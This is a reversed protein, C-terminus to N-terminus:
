ILLTHNSTINYCAWALQGTLSQEHAPNCSGGYPDEPMSFPGHTIAREKEIKCSYVLILVQTANTPSAYNTYLLPCLSKHLVSYLQSSYSLSPSLLILNIPLPTPHLTAVALPLPYLLLHASPITPRRGIVTTYKHIFLDTHQEHCRLSNVIAKNYIKM